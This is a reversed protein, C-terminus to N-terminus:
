ISRCQITQFRDAETVNRCASCWLYPMLLRGAIYMHYRQQGKHVPLRASIDIQDKSDDSDKKRGKGKARVTTLAQARQGYLQAPGQQMWHRGFKMAMHNRVDLPRVLPTQLPLHDVENGWVADGLMNLGLVHDDISCFSSLHDQEGNCISLM